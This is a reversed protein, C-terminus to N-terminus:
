SALFKLWSMLRTFDRGWIEKSSQPSPNATKPLEPGAFNDSSQHLGTMEPIRRLKHISQQDLVSKEGDRTIGGVNVVTSGYSPPMIYEIMVASYTPSQYRCFEMKSSIFDARFRYNRLRNSTPFYYRCSLAEDRFLIRSSAEAKLISM